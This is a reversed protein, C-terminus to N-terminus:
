KEAIEYRVTLLDGPTEVDKYLEPLGTNFPNM